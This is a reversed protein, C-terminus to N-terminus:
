REAAQAEPVPPAGEAGILEPWIAHWDEPRLHWRRVQRGTAREIQVCNEPSPQRGGTGHRWQRVQDPNLGLTRAFAAMSPAEPASLFEDLTM